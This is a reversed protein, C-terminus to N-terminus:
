QKSRTIDVTDKLIEKAKSVFKEEAFNKIITVNQVTFEDEPKLEEGSEDKPKSKLNALEDNRKTINKNEEKIAYEIARYLENNQATDEYIATFKKWSYHKLVVM